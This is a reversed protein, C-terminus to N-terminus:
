VLTLNFQYSFLVQDSVTKKMYRNYVPFGQVASCAFLLSASLIGCCTANLQPYVSNALFLLKCRLKSIKVQSGKIHLIFWEGNMKDCSISSSM